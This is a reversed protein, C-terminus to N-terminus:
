DIHMLDLRDICMYTHWLPQGSKALAFLTKNNILYAFLETLGTHHTM